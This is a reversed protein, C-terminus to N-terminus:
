FKCEDCSEVERDAKVEAMELGREKYLPLLTENYFSDCEKALIDDWEKPVFYFRKVWAELVQNKEDVRAHVLDVWHRKSMGLMCTTQCLWSTFPVDYLKEKRTTKYEIIGERQGEPERPDYAFDDPSGCVYPRDKPICLGVSWLQVQPFQQKYFARVNPEAATGSRMAETEEVKKDGLLEDRYDEANGKPGIGIIKSVGTTSIRYSRLQHWIDSRQEALLLFCNEKKAFVLSM